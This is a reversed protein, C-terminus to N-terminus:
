QSGGDNPSPQTTSVLLTSIPPLTPNDARLLSSKPSGHGVHCTLCNADDSQHPKDSPLLERDHCQLCLEPATTKLLYQQDSEHPEHCWVCQGVSVPGHMMAYQHMAPQHCKICLEAKVTILQKKDATHCETCKGEAYPKHRYLKVPMDPQNPSRPSNDLAVAVPRVPANPDPVGDFFFSLTKYDREVSCGLLLMSLLGCLVIARVTRRSFRFHRRTVDM